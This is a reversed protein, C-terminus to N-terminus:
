ANRYVITCITHLKNLCSCAVVMSTICHTSQKRVLYVPAMDRVICLVISKNTVRLVIHFLKAWTQKKVPTKGETGCLKTELREAYKAYSLKNIM